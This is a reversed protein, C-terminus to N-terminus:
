AIPIPLVDFRHMVSTMQKTGNTYQVWIKWKGAVSFFAATTPTFTTTRQSTAPKFTVAQTDLSAAGPKKILWVASVFVTYDGSTPLMSIELAQGFDGETINEWTM